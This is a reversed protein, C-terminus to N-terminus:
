RFAAAARFEQVLVDVHEERAHRYTEPLADLRDQFASRMGGRREEAPVATPHIM